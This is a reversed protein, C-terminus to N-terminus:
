LGCVKADTNRFVCLLKPLRKKWFSWDHQGSPEHVHAVDYGRSKLAALFQLNSQCDDSGQEGDDTCGTAPSGHDVYFRVPVVPEQGARLVMANGDDRDVEGDHPWFLTGSQTGVFGFKEPFQFGAYVSILGGLSAGFIGTDRPGTKVRFGAEVRPMLDDKLFALYEDGKPAPWGPARAPAFTYQALRVDQTPLAVFVLVAADQPRAKYHADAADVFSERTISENGDHVYMVPLTPCEPGDYSPPTYVFVDRADGLVTARVGYWATLRGKTADQADPYVLSNFQGVANRNLRDWVVHKARPDEFFGGGKVLKYPHPGTRPIDVEAVFLDTDRVQALPTATPSWENFDGAVSTDRASDGRAFFVVRQRGSRADSVLPTGGQAAVDAVFQDIAATRVEPSTARSMALQLNVWLSIPAGRVVASRQCAWTEPGSGGDPSVGGDPYTQTFPPPPVYAAGESDDCASLLTACLLVASLRRM